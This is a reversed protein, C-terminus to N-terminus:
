RLGYANNHKFPEVKIRHCLYVYNRFRLVKAQSNSSFTKFIFLYKM